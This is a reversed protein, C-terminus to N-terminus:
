SLWNQEFVNKEPIVINKNQVTNTIPRTNHVNCVKQLILASRDIQRKIKITNQDCRGVSALFRSSDIYKSETVMPSKQFLLTTM